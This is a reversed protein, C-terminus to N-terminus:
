EGSGHSRAALQGEDSVRLSQLRARIGLRRRANGQHGAHHQIHARYDDGHKRHAPGDGRSLVQAPQVRHTGLGPQLVCWRRTGEPRSIGLGACGQLQQGQGPGGPHRRVASAHRRRAFLHTCRLSKRRPTARSPATVRPRMAAATIALVTIASITTTTATARGPLGTRREGMRNASHTAPRRAPISIVEYYADAILYARNALPPAGPMLSPDDKASDQLKRQYAWLPKQDLLEVGVVADFSGRSFGTSMMIRQSGGGGDETFGYRYDFTTGDVKKKLNFNIVGAVADSGYIASAGGSLVQVNDIMGLPINSIDTFNSQANLPLPFDAIRRGNVLVLTHGPGLGRLDVQEAGPTFDSGNYDQQSQTAGNNQTVARLVDPVSVLGDAKIQEATIITVPSPGEKSARSHALRDGPGRRCRRGCGGAAASRRRGSAGSCAPCRAPSFDGRSHRYCDTGARKM